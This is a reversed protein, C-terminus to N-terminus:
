QPHQIESAAMAAPSSLLGAALVAFSAFLSRITKTPPPQISLRRNLVASCWQPSARFPLFHWM